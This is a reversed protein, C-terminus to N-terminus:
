PSPQTCVHKDEGDQQASCLPPTPTHTPTTRALILSEPTGVSPIMELPWLAAHSTEM